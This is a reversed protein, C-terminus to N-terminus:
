DRILVSLYSKASLAFFSCEIVPLGTHDAYDKAEGFTAHEKYEGQGHKHEGGRKAIQSCGALHITVHPNRRNEYTTFAMAM